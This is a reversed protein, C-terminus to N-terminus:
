TVVSNVQVNNNLTPTALSGAYYLGTIGIAAVTGAIAPAPATTVNEKPCVDVCRYCDICEGSKM